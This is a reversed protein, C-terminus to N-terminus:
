YGMLRAINAAIMYASSMPSGDMCQPVISNDAVILNQVGYVRGFSDVVGGQNIPAMRCHSQFHMNAGVEEKIFATLAATDDLIAPDPFILQYLPDITQLQINIQKVYTQFASVFLDLDSPDSFEGLDLVFPALPDASNISVSGRSKPQCLDLLAATIGKVADVTTFRVLRVTPDGGPAPLWSIQSFVGNSGAASDEPNSTFLMLVHPQDALGQGVNPNDFVVPINLSQLLSASGVGSHLLFPSSGLGACVIVGKNAYVKKTIGNQMYEVGVAKTGEWITRLAQSDFHVRLKRGKVGKGKSNMVEDDLFATASSVRYYGDHGKHTLQLQPSVGIPTSPDNYDLVFPFGTALIVAESFVQSLKTIPSDQRIKLPGHHGRAKPNTTQGDYDELKKYISMIKHASWEPGALAEWQAYLQDTGRCWAGANVATAGGLPLAMAWFLERDDAAPQPISFGTEYLPKASSTTLAILDALEKQLAPPIDLTAPDFPPVAGLLASLVSFVTNKSYKCIFSNTFNKGSHLAIVSTKKDDSLKRAMLGGATGVGVVVYDATDGKVGSHGALAYQTSVFTFLTLACVLWRSLFM